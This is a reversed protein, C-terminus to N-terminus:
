SAPFSYPGCFSVGLPGAREPVHFQGDKLNREKQEGRQGGRRLSRGNSRLSWNKGQPCGASSRNGQRVQEAVTRKHRNHQTAVGPILAWEALPLRVVENNVGPFERLPVGFNEECTGTRQLIEVLASFHKQRNFRPHGLVDYQHHIRIVRRRIEIAEAPVRRVFYRVWGSENQVASSLDEIFFDAVAMAVTQRGVLCQLAQEGSVSCFHM